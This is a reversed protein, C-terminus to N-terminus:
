CEIRFKTSGDDLKKPCKEKVVLIRGVWNKSKGGLSPSGVLPMIIGFQEPARSRSAFSLVDCCTLTLVVKCPASGFRLGFGVLLSQRDWVRELSQWIRISMPTPFDSLMKKPFWRSRPPPMMLAWMREVLEVDLRQDDLSISVNLSLVFDRVNRGHSIGSWSVAPTEWLIEQRITRAQHIRDHDLALYRSGGLGTGEGGGSIACGEWKSTEWNLIAMSLNRAIMRKSMALFNAVDIKLQHVQFSSLLAQYFALMTSSYWFRVTIYPGALCGIWFLYSVLRM